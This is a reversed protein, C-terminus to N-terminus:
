NADRAGQFVAELWLSFFGEDVDSNSLLLIVHHRLDDSIANPKIGSMMFAYSLAFIENVIMSLNLSSTDNGVNITFLPKVKLFWKVFIAAKKHPSLYKKNDIVQFLASQKNIDRYTNNIIKQLALESIILELDLDPYQNGQEDFYTRIRNSLTSVVSRTDFKQDSVNEDDFDDISPRM